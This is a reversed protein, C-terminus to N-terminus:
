VLTDARVADILWTNVVMHQCGHTSSRRKLVYNIIRVRLESGIGVHHWWMSRNSEHGRTLPAGKRMPGAIRAAAPEAKRCPDDSDGGGQSEAQGASCLGNSGRRPRGGTGSRCMNNVLLLDMAAHPRRGDSPGSM